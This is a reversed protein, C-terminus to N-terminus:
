RTEAKGKESACSCSCRIGKVMRPWAENSEEEETVKIMAAEGATKAAGIVMREGAVTEHTTQGTESRQRKRKSQTLSCNADTHGRHLTPAWDADSKCMRVCM